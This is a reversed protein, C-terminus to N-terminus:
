GFPYPEIYEERDSSWTWNKIKLVPTNIKEKFEQITPQSVNRIFGYLIPQTSRNPALILELNNTYYGLYKQVNRLNIWNIMEEIDNFEIRPM